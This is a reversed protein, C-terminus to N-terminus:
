LKKFNIKNLINDLINSINKDLIEFDIGCYLNNLM